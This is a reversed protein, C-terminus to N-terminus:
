DLSFKKIEELIQPLAMEVFLHSCWAMVKIVIAAIALHHPHFFNRYHDKKICTFSLRIVITVLNM